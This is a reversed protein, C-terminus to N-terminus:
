YLKLRELCYAGVMRGQLLGKEIAERFHIAGYLRSIGAEEAVQKFSSYVRPELTRSYNTSDTFVVNGVLQTLIIEAAGSCVSHGSPYEPFPPTPDKQGTVWNEQGKIYNRIYTEPRLLNVKYKSDWCSLFADAMAIATFAYIKSLEAFSYPQVQQVHGIIGIWHGSPTQSNTPDSWWFRISDMTPTRNAATTVVEYAQKYFASNSDTSFAITSPVFFQNASQLVFPRCLNFYPDYPQKNIEDTAAWVTANNSRSPIPYPKANAEDFHDKKCWAIIAAALQLGYKKSAAIAQKNNGYGQQIEKYLDEIQLSDSAYHYPMLFHTVKYMAENTVIFDITNNPAKTFSNKPLGNLKGQLSSYNTPQVLASEYLTISGYAFLRAAPPPTIHLNAVMQRYLNMWKVAVLAQQQAFAANCFQVAFVFLYICIRIYFISNKKKYIHFAM